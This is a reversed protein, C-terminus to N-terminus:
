SALLPWANNLWKQNGMPHLSRKVHKKSCLSMNSMSKPLRKAVRYLIYIYIYIFINLCVDRERERETYVCTYIHVYIRVYACIIHIQTNM